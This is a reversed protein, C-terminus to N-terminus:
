KSSTRILHDKTHKRDDELDKLKNDILIKAVQFNEPDPSNIMEGLRKREERSFNLDKMLKLYVTTQMSDQIMKMGGIGTQVVFQRDQSGQDKSLSEIFSHIDFETLPKGQKVMSTKKIDEWISM